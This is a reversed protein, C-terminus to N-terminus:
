KKLELPKRLAPNPTKLSILRKVFHGFTGELRIRIVLRCNVSPKLLQLVPDPICWTLRQLPAYSKFKHILQASQLDFGKNNKKITHVVIGKDILNSSIFTSRLFSSRPFHRKRLAKVRFLATYVHLSYFLNLEQMSTKAQRRESFPESMVSFTGKNNNEM